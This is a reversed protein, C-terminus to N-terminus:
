LYLEGEGISIDVDQLVQQTNGKKIEYVKNIKKAELITNM